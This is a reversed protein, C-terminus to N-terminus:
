LRSHKRVFSMLSGSYLIGIWQANTVKGNSKGWGRRFRKDEYDWSISKIRLEKLTLAPRHEFIYAVLEDVSVRSCDDSKNVEKLFSMLAKKTNEKVRITDASDAQKAKSTSKRLKEQTRKENM